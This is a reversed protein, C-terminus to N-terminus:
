ISAAPDAAAMPVAPTDDSVPATENIVPLVDTRNTRRAATRLRNTENMRRRNLEAENEGIIPSVPANLHLKASLREGNIHANMGRAFLNWDDGIQRNRERIQRRSYKEFVVWAPDNSTLTAPNFLGDLFEVVAEEHGKEHAVSCAALVAGPSIGLRTNILSAMRAYKDFTEEWAEATRVVDGMQFQLARSTMLVGPTREHWLIIRAAASKASSYKSKVFQGAHRAAGADIFEFLSADSEWDIYVQVSVGSKIVANCRQLGNFLMGTTKDILIPDPVLTWRGERMTAAYRDAVQLVRRQRPHVRTVLIKALEPTLLTPALGTSMGNTSVEHQEGHEM